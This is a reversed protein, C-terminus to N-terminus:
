TANRSRPWQLVKESDRELDTRLKALEAAVHERMRQREMAFATALVKQQYELARQIHAQAWANWEDGANQPQAPQEVTKYIMRAPDATPADFELPELGDIKRQRREALDDAITSTRELM